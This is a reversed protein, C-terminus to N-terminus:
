GNLSRARNIETSINYILNALSELDYQVKRDYYEIRLVGKYDKKKTPKGITRPDINPKRFLQKPVKTIKAWYNELEKPNQDARCQVLCRVKDLKFNFCYKLLKLFIIVIKPDSSGLYFCSSTKPNYKSAEGLCLMALAIKAIKKNKIRQAIPFNKKNIQKFLQERKIKNTELAKQRAKNLNDKNLKKIRYTYNKPLIINKCWESLTSKPINLKILKKIEGYTKGLLRLKQIKFIFEQPYRRM